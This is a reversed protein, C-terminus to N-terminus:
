RDVPTRPKPPADLYVEHPKKVGLQKRFVAERYVPDNEVSEIAKEFVEVRHRKGEIEAHLQRERQLLTLSKSARPPLLIIAVICALLGISLFWYIENYFRRDSARKEPARSQQKATDTM